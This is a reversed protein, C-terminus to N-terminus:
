ALLSGIADGSGALLAWGPSLNVPLDMVERSATIRWRVPIPDPDDLSRLVAEAHWQEAVLGALVERAAAVQAPGVAEPTSSARWWSWLSVALQATGVVFTVLAAVSAAGALGDAGNL